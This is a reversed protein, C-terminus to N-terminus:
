CYVTMIVDTLVVMICAYSAQVFADFGFRLFSYKYSRSTLRSCILNNSM